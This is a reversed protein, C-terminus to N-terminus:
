GIAANGSTNTYTTIDIAPNTGTNVVRVQANSVPQTVANYVSIALTGCQTCATEIGNPPEVRTVLTIHRAGQRSDWAVDVRVVKYDLFTPASAPLTDASGIGDYPDDAYLVTTRRTYSIGNLAVTESQAITGSPIGGVTGISSYDRSRVYEMREDALAIAGARAKNNSVIDVSLKFVGSIGVFVVLLLASGVLTDILTVGRSRSYHNAVLTYGSSIGNRRKEANM